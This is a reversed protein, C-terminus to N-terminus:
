AAVLAHQHLQDDIGLAVAYEAAVNASRTGRSIAWSRPMATLIPAVLASKSAVMATWGVAASSNTVCARCTTPSVSKRRSSYSTCHAKFGMWQAARDQAFHVRARERGDFRGAADEMEGEQGIGAQGILVAGGQKIEEAGASMATRLLRGAMMPHSEGIRGQTPLLMGLEGSVRPLELSQAGIKKRARRRIQRLGHREQRLRARMQNRDVQMEKGLLLRLVPPAAEILRAQRCELGFRAIGYRSRIKM